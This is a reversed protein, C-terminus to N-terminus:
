IRSHRGESAILGEKKWRPTCPQDTALSQARCVGLWRVLYWPPQPRAHFNECLFSVHYMDFNRGNDNIFVNNWMSINSMWVQLGSSPQNVATWWRVDSNLDSATTKSVDDRSEEQLPPTTRIFFHKWGIGTQLLASPTQKNRFTRDSNTVTHVCVRCRSRM